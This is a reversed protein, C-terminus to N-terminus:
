MGGALNEFLSKQIPWYGFVKKDTQQFKGAVLLRTLEDSSNAKVVLDKLSATLKGLEAAIAQADKASNCDAELHAAYGGDKGGLTLVVRDAGSVAAAFLKTGAPMSATQKLVSSPVSLWVPDSPIAVASHPSRERLRAAALDDTAVALAMLNHELSLFSIRRDPQSGPLHCLEQYCGGGNAKAYSELKPWDFRGRLILYTADPAFSVLAADLDKQYDFGSSQVFSRYEPEELGPKAALLSLLGGKRLASFDVSLVTANQTPLHDLPVFSPRLALWAGTGVGLLGACLLAYTGYRTV